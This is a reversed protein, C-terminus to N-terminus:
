MTDLAQGLIFIFLILLGGVVFSFIILIWNKKVAGIIFMTVPAAIVLFLLFMSFWERFQSFPKVVEFIRTGTIKGDAIITIECKGVKEPLLLYHGNKGTLTGNTTIAKIKDCPVGSVAIDVPYEIKPKLVVMNLVEAAIVIKASDNKNVQAELVTQGIIFAIVIFCLNKM